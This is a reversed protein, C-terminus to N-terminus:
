RTDFALDRECNIHLLQTHKVLACYSSDTCDPNTILFLKEMFLM